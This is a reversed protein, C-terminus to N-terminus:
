WFDEESINGEDDFTWQSSRQPGGADENTIGVPSAGGLLPNPYLIDITEITPKIYKKKM